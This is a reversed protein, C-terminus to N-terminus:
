VVSKRDTGTSAKGKIQGTATVYKKLLEVNKYDVYMMGEECFSCARRRSGFTRRKKNFAM